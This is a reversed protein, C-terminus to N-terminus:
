LGNGRQRAIFTAPVGCAGLIGEVVGKSRGFAGEGPRAGLDIGIINKMARRRHASRLEKLVGVAEIVVLRTQKVNVAQVLDNGQYAAESISRGLSEILNGHEWQCRAAALM